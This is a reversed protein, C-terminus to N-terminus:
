IGPITRAKTQPNYYDMGGIVLVLIIRFLKVKKLFTSHITEFEVQKELGWVHTKETQKKIGFM